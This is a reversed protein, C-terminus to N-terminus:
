AAVRQHRSARYEDVWQRTSYWVGNYKNARLRGRQAAALLASRSLDRTALAPLPVVSLPGALAPMLFRHIGDRVARALLEALGGCDGNDARELARLYKQREDKHIVAPPYGYRVLLLNLVLRGVRGNGDPFPHIREFLAHLAALEEMLHMNEDDHRANARELWGGLDPAVSTIPVPILGPRLPELERTRYSGPTENPMLGEPPFHKWVSGVVLEHIRRIDTETVMVDPRTYSGQVAHQYVWRAADGYAQVELWERLETASGSVVGSDLLLQVQRRRLTNGELATSHHTEDKWIESWIDGVVTPEPLGGIVQLDERAQDLTRFVQQRSPRGPPPM